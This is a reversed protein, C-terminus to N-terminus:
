PSPKVSPPSCPVRACLERLDLAPRDPRPDVSAAALARVVEFQIYPDDELFGHPTLKPPGEIFALQDPGAERPGTWKGGIVGGQEDLALAASWAFRLPHLGVPRYFTGDSGGPDLVDAV